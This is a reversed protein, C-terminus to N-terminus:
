YRSEFDRIVDETGSFNFPVDQAMTDYKGTSDKHGAYLVVWSGEKTFDPFAKRKKTINWLFHVAYWGPELGTFRYNGTADVSTTSVDHM